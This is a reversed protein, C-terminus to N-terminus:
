FIFFYEFKRKQSVLYETNSSTEGIYHVRGRPLGRPIQALPSGLLTPEASLMVSEKMGTALWPTKPTATYINHQGLLRNRFWDM